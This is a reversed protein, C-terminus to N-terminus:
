VIDTHHFDTPNVVGNLQIVSEGGDVGDADYYLYGNGGVNYALYYQTTGDLAAQAAALTTAEDTFASGDAEVFNSDTGAATSVDLKDVSTAFDTITDATAWTSGTDNPLNFVFTDAGDGGTLVDGKSIFTYQPPIVQYNMSRALGNVYDWYEFYNFEGTGGILTDDGTGGILTDSGGGGILSDVGFSGIIQDNSGSGNVVITGFNNATAL